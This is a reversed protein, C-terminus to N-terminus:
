SSFIAVVCSDYAADYIYVAIKPVTTMKTQTNKLLGSATKKKKKKKKKSSVAPPQPSLHDTLTLVSEEFRIM